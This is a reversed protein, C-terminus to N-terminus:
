DDYANDDNDYDDYDDDDYDDYDDDDDNGNDNGDDNGNDDDDDDDDDHENNDDRGWIFPNSSLLTWRHVYQGGASHGVVSIKKLNPFNYYSGQQQEEEDDEDEDEDEGEELQKEQQKSKSKSEILYELLRDMVTYSSIGKTTNTNLADAGYRWTHSLPLDQDRSGGHAWYLINPIGSYNYYNNNKNNNRNLFLDDDNPRRDDNYNNIHDDNDNDNDQWDQQHNEQYIDIDAVFKPAIVLMNDKEITVLASASAMKDVLSMGACLYEDANRASGHVIVLITEISSFKKMYSYDREQEQENENNNDKGGNSNGHQTISGMSSYYAANYGDVPFGHLKLVDSLSSSSSSSPLRCLEYRPTVPVNLYSPHPNRLKCVEEEIEEKEEEGKEKEEENDDNSDETDTDTDSFKFACEYGVGCGTRGSGATGNNDCCEGNANNPDKKRGPICSSIGPIDTPCCTSGDPCIGGGGDTSSCVQWADVVIIVNNNINVINVILFLSLLAFLINTTTSVFSSLTSSLLKM